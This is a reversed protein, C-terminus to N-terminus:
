LSIFLSDLVKAGDKPGGGYHWDSPEESLERYMGEGTIDWTSIFIHTDDWGDIGLDDARYTFAITKATKDVSVSPAVGLRNGQKSSSANESTFTTNGWGYIVHGIDWLRENPMTSNILPLEAIGASSETDFFISFAVNDFGNPPIWDDTLERMSFTLRLVDGGKEVTLGTIDQQGISQEHRPPTYSGTPGVDDASPDEFITTSEPKDVVTTFMLTDSARGVTPDYAEISVKETGLNNVNYNYEWNGDADSQIPVAKSVKANKVLKITKNPESTTGTILIDQTVPSYPSKTTITPSGSEFEASGTNTEIDTEIIEMIQIARGAMETTLDGNTSLKKEAVDGFLAVLKAAQSHVNIKNVLIPYRSTNFLVLVKKGEYERTYALVGAGRKESAVINVDGRTFVKNSTRLNALTSIHKYLESETNFMDTDQGYGGKFMAQRSQTMAQESGQYITPIGPLTMIAALAQKFGAVDGSALFREMDHNDIFTPLLYPDRYVDMHQQIRYALHDTPLGQGFVTKLEFHLPFSIISNLIPKDATGMYSAVRKEADNEYAKSTDFVEGFAIFNDRGTKEATALIGDEDNMFHDFFEHEVYRVTDIRFADIGAKEIWDGYIEKFKDIVVPNTTNIDALTALQYTFQHDLNRYDTISPTWNYIDAKVHDPNNRNILDFPSQTPRQQLADESELFFFNEATNEPNYGATGGQYNFFNGTHNVVIDKILYMGRRHLQDSLRQYTELDGKHADVESFNTAWYGHYGGYETFDSWWQNAVIPTTWVATMGLGQLYDLQDIVGQIDGGSYRNSLAPNYENIGQDNNSPNGDNFRDTMLFYIVQDRWDPSTVHLLLEDEEVEDIQEEPADVCSILLLSLCVILNTHSTTKARKRTPNM